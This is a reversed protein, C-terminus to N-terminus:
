LGPPLFYRATVVFIISRSQCCFLVYFLLRVYLAGVMTVMFNFINASKYIIGRSNDADIASRFHTQSADEINFILHISALECTRLIKHALHLELSPRPVSSIKLEGAHVFSLLDHTRGERM